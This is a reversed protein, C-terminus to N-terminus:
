QEKIKAVSKVFQNISYFPAVKQTVGLPLLKSYFTNQQM